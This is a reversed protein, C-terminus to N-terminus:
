LPSCKQGRVDSKRSSFDWSFHQLIPNSDGLYPLKWFTVMVLIPIVVQDINLANETIGTASPRPNCTDFKRVIVPAVKPLLSQYVDVIHQKRAELAHLVRMFLRAHWPLSDRPTGPTTYYGEADVYGVDGTHLFGDADITEATATPNNLYGAM